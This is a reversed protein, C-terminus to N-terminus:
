ITHSSVKTNRCNSFCTNLHCVSILTAKSLFIANSSSNCCAFCSISAICSRCADSTSVKLFSSTIALAFISLKVELSDEALRSFVLLGSAAFGDLRKPQSTEFTLRMPRFCLALSPSTLTAPSSEEVAESSLTDARLAVVLASQREVDHSTRLLAGPTTAKIHSICSRLICFAVFFAQLIQPEATRWPSVKVDNDFDKSAEMDMFLAKSFIGRSPSAFATSKPQMGNIVRDLLISSKARTATGRGSCSPSESVIMM